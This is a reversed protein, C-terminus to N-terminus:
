LDRLDLQCPDVFCQPRGENFDVTSRSPIQKKSNGTAPNWCATAESGSEQILRSRLAHTQKLHRKRSKRVVIEPPRGGQCMGMSIQPHEEHLQPRCLSQECPRRLLSRHARERQLRHTQLGQPPPAIFLGEIKPMAQFLFCPAVLTNQPAVRIQQYRSSIHLFYNIKFAFM